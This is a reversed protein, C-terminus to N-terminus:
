WIRCVEEPKKVMPQGPKCQFAEAFEPMNVVVGNIRHFAPSHPDVRARLRLAEPRYGACAWQAFGVFFRQEPTLGDRSPLKQGRTADKWAEWALITGGLDAVDEGLTLKSNIKIDDVVTYQAYQGAVCAVRREFEKGDEPTWWDRLNGQADFQRGEDDFGHVLEHGVTSGTNGYNPADDMKLDFLPPLLVGAPFNMDNMYPNYYANVTPPTMGWEDRDVPTGIKDLQRRLEFAKVRGVNGAFDDRRVEVASYDRWRDPYGIKDRLAHLKALAQQKTAAGMWPLGQIRREMAKEIHHVVEQAEAKAEPPFVKGVFVKGLAEGLDEDVREVCRKWRPSLEQIGELHAEYFDFSARVFPSSLYPARDRALHWRLYTQLDEISSGTIQKEVERYFAPETVNFDDLGPKGVGRLYDDWRFSPTLAQLGARNVPHDLNRPNRLEVPALSAKALATEIRLVTEARRAPAPDGLLEFTRQIFAKYRERTEKSREDEELYSDRDPIGLGGSHAFGVVRSADQYSQSSSFTFLMAGPSLRPHLRGLLAGLEDKSRLGAIAELDARLPAAGAKEIAPEDMCAAFYDGVQRTEADRKPDPRAAETLLGWLFQQNEQGTKRYVSWSSQDAPIPNKELWKGCSFRHFDVCPDISRDMVTVDLSPTYPLETLPREAPAAPAASAASVAPAPKYQVGRKLVLDVDQLLEVHKLVDGRVAIIDASKGPSITGVEKDKKMFFAPWFTAARLADMPEVGFVRVWTAIERWTADSHFNLPVGSDTGILLIAGSQRLQEFKRQLTPRRGPVYQFYALSEPHALSRRIDDVVERPLGEQWRPDDIREPFDDRTEQYLLLPSITPTWFLTNARGKMLDFVDPPYEPATGLGTHEFNDVGALIGRRVEEPRHSHAVVPLGRKHAEDVIARVEDMTMQDQDILKIVDVKAEALRRVKARGDEPGKVGWRFQETGPYPEHQLFPGSVYLTPGAMEGKNIANRIALIDDLPAGLDRASTVGALLLQKAAAPMITSRFLRPYTRDWHDYDGHGVIMLHVHMDWLGPLVSMGETSIVEAGQPIAVEGVRGVATIREGEILVVSNELPRGGYGDILRGGVLAKVPAASAASGALMYILFTAAILRQVYPM